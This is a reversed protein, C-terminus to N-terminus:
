FLSLSLGMQVLNLQSSKSNSFLTNLNYSGFLAWNRMGIRMHISYIFQNDDPFGSRKTTTKYGDIHAVQKSLLNTQYGIKGGLHFKFQKWSENRFRFEIPVSFSNGSLVSKFFNDSDDKPMFVTTGLSDNIVLKNDHRVNTYQHSIGIGFSFKDGKIMPIDFMVNTNLGISAWHNSFVDREGVWDNYTIDFILRDYKAPKEEEAPSIGSYFWMIGPRFRSAKSDGKGDFQANSLFGVSCFLIIISRSLM